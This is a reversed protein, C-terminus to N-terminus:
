AETQANTCKDAYSKAADLTKFWVFVPLYEDADDDHLRVLYQTTNEPKFVIASVGAGADTVTYIIPASM